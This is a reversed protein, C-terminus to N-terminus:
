QKLWSEVRAEWWPRSLAERMALAGKHLQAWYQPDLCDEIGQAVADATPRVLVGNFGPLVLNGLGGVPTAVVPVGSALAEVCAFSTGESWLTPVVALDTDRYVTLVQDLDARRVDVIHQLNRRGLERNIESGGVVAMVATFEIGRKVLRSLADMFLLPGRKPEYRRAFLLRAPQALAGERIPLKASDAYNPVYECHCSLEKGLRGQGRLWNIFNTDVCLISRMARAFALVRRRQFTRRVASLEGDWWIGHQVGKAGNVFFPWAAEGDAYVVADTPGVLKQTFRGLAPDGFSTVDCKVGIVPFGEPSLREFQRRGKQVILVDRHWRKVVIEALDRTHRQRGGPSPEGDFTLYDATHVVVRRAWSDWAAAIRTM